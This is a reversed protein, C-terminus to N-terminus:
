VLRKKRVPVGRSLVKLIKMVIFLIPEGPVPSLLTHHLPLLTCVSVHNHVLTFLMHEHSGMHACEIM